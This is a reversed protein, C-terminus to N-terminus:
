MPLRIATWVSFSLAIVCGSCRLPGVRSAHGSAGHRTFVLLAFQFAPARELGRGDRSYTVGASVARHAGGPPAVVVFHGRRFIITLARARHPRSREM